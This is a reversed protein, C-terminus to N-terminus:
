ILGTGEPPLGSLPVNEKEGCRAKRRAKGTEAVTGGDERRLGPSLDWRDRHMIAKIATGQTGDQDGMGEERDWIAVRPRELGRECVFPWM